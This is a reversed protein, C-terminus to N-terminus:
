TNKATLYVNWTGSGCGSSGVSAGTATMNFALRVFATGVDTFSLLLRNNGTTIAVIGSPITQAFLAGTASNAGPLQTNGADPTGTAGNRLPLEDTGQVYLYGTYGGVDGAAGTASQIGLTISLRRQEQINVWSTVWSSTAIPLKQGTGDNIFLQNQIFSRSM